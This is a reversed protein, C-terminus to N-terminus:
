WSAVSLSNFHLLVSANGGGGGATGPPMARCVAIQFKLRKSRVRDTEAALDSVAHIERAFLNQVMKVHFLKKYTMEPMAARLRLNGASEGSVAHKEVCHDFCRDVSDAAVLHETEFRFPQGFQDVGLRFVARDGDEGPRRTVPVIVVLSIHNLCKHQIVAVIAIFAGQLRCEPEAVKQDM